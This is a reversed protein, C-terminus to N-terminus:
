LARILEEVRIELAEAVRLLSTIRSDQTGKEMRVVHTHNTGLKQALEEQTMGMEKRRNKIREAILKLFKENTMSRNKCNRREVFSLITKNCIQLM